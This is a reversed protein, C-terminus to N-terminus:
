DLFHLEHCNLIPLRAESDTFNSTLEEDEVPLNKKVISLPPFIREIAPKRMMEFTTAENNKGKNTNTVDIL